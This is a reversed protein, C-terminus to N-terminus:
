EEESEENNEGPERETEEQFGLGLCQPCEEWSVVFRSEGKFFSVQGSGDCVECTKKMLVEKIL